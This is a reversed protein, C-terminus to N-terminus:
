EASRPRRREIAEEAVNLRKELGGLRVLIFGIYVFMGVWLLAYASLVYPAAGLVTKYIEALVPDM